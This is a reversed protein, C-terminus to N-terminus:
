ISLIQALDYMDQEIDKSSSLMEPIDIESLGGNQCSVMQNTVGAILKDVARAGLRSGLIRDRATPKGGRQLHGLIIVRTELGTKESIAEGLRFANSQNLDRNTKFNEGVGEAVMVISHLKGREYGSKVKNAVEEISFDVEPILISEAGGALGAGLTLFGAHRGMTEIIFTREHSTATDRIRDVSDLITNMATDFGIAYDTGPMDNDISAPVGVAPFDLKTAIDNVGRMTGDGGICIIGGIGQKKMQALAKQMGEETKFEECRASLLMTGGKHVIDAVSRRELPLFDGDILGSFGRKVGFVELGEYIAKRTAARIASNMGPADGGSTLIAIKDV